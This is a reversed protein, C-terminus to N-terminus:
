PQSLPQLPPVKLASRTAAWALFATIAPVLLLTAGPWRWDVLWRSDFVFDSFLYSLILSAVIGLVTAAAGLLSFEFVWMKTLESFEGGLVKLLATDRRRSRAQHSAISILVVAGVLLSLAAMSRLAWSMQELIGLIRAVVESVDVMSVNPFSEVLKGQVVMKDAAPIKGVSALFTKPAEDIVGPPFQIFFNPQFSSWRVRRFNAVTAIVEVGQVDLKLRDGLKFKMRRAYDREVSVVPQGVDASVDKGAIIEETDTLRERYTLNLGRNRFRREVEEERTETRDPVDAKEYPADNVAILRARVTPSVNGAPAGQAKLLAIVGDRQDEQIDFLFLSPLNGGTDPAELQAKLTHQIQGILNILLIGLSLALLCSLTAVKQRALQRLPMRRYWHRSRAKELPKLLLAGVGLVLGAAGALGLTFLTGVVLSKAQWVALAWYFVFGPIVGYAEGKTTPLSIQGASLLQVPKLRRLRTLLPLCALWSGVSSLILALGVSRWSLSPSLRFPFFSELLQGMAPLLIASVLCAPILAAFGLIVLQVGYSRVAQRPPMGLARLVAVEKARKGLFSRFLYAGGVSALFFAVLTALGLYDGLYRAARAVQESASQPDQIRLAPDPIVKDLERVVQANDAPATFRVLRTYSVSGGARILKTSPLDSFAIFIKPAMAMFASGTAPDHTVTDRITFVGDGLKLTDGLALGLQPLVEPTVWATGPQALRAKGGHSQSGTLLEGYFPYSEEVAKLQVLRSRDKGAAMTFFEVVRTAEHAPLQSALIAEEDRTLDRRGSIALDAALLSKSRERVSEDVSVKFADLTLFGVLGLSLNAIFALAFRRDHRIERLALRLPLFSYAKM